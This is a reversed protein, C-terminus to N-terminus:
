SSDPIPDLPPQSVNIMMCIAPICTGAPFDLFEECFVNSLKPKQTSM